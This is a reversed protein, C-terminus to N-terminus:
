QCHYPHQVKYQRMSSKDSRLRETISHLTNDFGNVIKERNLQQQQFESPVLYQQYEPPYQDTSQITAEHAAVAGRGEEKRRFVQPGDAREARGEYAHGGADEDHAPVDSSEDQEAAM